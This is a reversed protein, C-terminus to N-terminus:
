FNFLSAGDGGTTPAVCSENGDVFVKFSQDAVNLNETTSFSRAAFNTDAVEVGDADGTAMLTFDLPADFAAATVVSYYVCFSHKSKNQVIGIAIDLVYNAIKVANDHANGPLTIPAAADNSPGAVIGEGKAHVAVNSYNVLSDKDADSPATYIMKHTWGGTGNGDAFCTAQADVPVDPTVTHSPSPTPTREDVEDGVKTIAYTGAGDINETTKYCGTLDPILSNLSFYFDAGSLKMTVDIKLLVNGNFTFEYASLDVPDSFLSTPFYLKIDSPSAVITDNAPIVTANAQIVSDTKHTFQSNYNGESGDIVVLEDHGVPGCDSPEPEPEPAPGGDNDPLVSVINAPNRTTGGYVVVAEPIDITQGDNLVVVYLNGCELKTFGVAQSPKSAKWLNEEFTTNGSGETVCYVESIATSAVANGHLAFSDCGDQVNGRGYWILNIRRNLIM